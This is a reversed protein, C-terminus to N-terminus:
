DNAKVLDVGNGSPDSLNALEPKPRNELKGGAIIAREIAADMDKVHFDLHVPTWHRHYSRTFPGAPGAAIKMIWITQEGVKLQAWDPVEQVVELGIGENYFRVAAAVDDVDICIDCRM